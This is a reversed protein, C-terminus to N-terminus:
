SLVLNEAVAACTLELGASWHEKNRPIWANRISVAHPPLVKSGSM